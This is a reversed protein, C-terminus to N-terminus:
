QMESTKSQVASTTFQEELLDFFMQTNLIKNAVAFIYHLRLDQADNGSIYQNNKNFILKLKIGQM